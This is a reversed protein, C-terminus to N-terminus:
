REDGAPTGTAFASPAVGYTERFAVSFGSRSGFGAADAAEGVSTGGRLLAAARALRRARLLAAPTQGTLAGLKRALQRPSLALAEALADAGFAADALRPALAADVTDLFRREVLNTALVAVARHAGDGSAGDGFAGDGSAGDGRFTAADAAYRDRLRQREAVLAAAQARLVDPSFPKTLYGDAGAAYGAVHAGADARATLMLVPVHSTRRDAKLAQTLAVGDRRPMRVDTVVLDPVYDLALALAEEGDRATLVIAPRGFARRLHDAVYARLDDHDEAVLVVLREDDSADDDLLGDDPLGDDPLGDGRAGDGSVGDGRAGDGRAGDGRAGDGSVGDALPLVLTFTAGEGPPSAVEVRGGDREAWERALALGLGSGVGAREDARYFREFLHPLADAPVGPGTDSVAIRARGAGTSLRVSVRGGAPTHRLANAVLNGLARGVAPADVLAVAPAAPLAVALTVGDREAHALFPGTAEAILGALDAPAPRHPVAHADLRAADLLDDVLRALRAANGAALRVSRAAPASLPGHRGSALDGLPGALLTLPTRLEHSATEFLRAQADQAERVVANTQALDANAAELADAQQAIEANKRRMARVYLAGAAAALAALALVAALGWRLRERRADARAREAAFAADADQQGAARAQDLSHLEESLAVSRRYAALAGTADGAADLALALEATGDVLAAQIGSAEAAAVSRRAFAAAEAARGALRADRALMLWALGEEAPGLPAAAVSDAAPRAVRRAAATQGADYFVAAELLRFKFRGRSDASRALLAYAQRYTALADGRRAPDQRYVGGLQELHEVAEDPTGEAVQRAVLGRLLAAARDTRGTAADLRARASVLADQWGAPGEADAAAAARQFHRAAAAMGGRDFALTGLGYSAIGVYRHSGAAEAEGLLGRFAAAAAATRGADLLTHALLNLPVLSAEGRESGSASAAVAVGRRILALGRAGDGADSAAAGQWALSAAHYTATGARVAARAAEAFLRETGPAGLRNLAAADAYQACAAARADGARDAATRIRRAEARVSDLDVLRLAEACRRIGPSPDSARASTSPALLLVLSAVRLLM